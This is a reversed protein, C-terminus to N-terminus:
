LHKNQINNSTQTFRIANNQQAHALTPLKTGRTTWKRYLLFRSSSHYNHSMWIRYRNHSHICGCYLWLPSNYVELVRDESCDEPGGQQCFLVTIFERNRRLQRLEVQNKITYECMISSSFSYVLVDEEELRCCPLRDSAGGMTMTPWNIRLNPM